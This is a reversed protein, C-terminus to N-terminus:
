DMVGMLYFGLRIDQNLIHGTLWDSLYAIDEVSLQPHEQNFKKQLQRVDEILEEHELKHEEFRKYQYKIMLREEHRFHWATCSILEELLAEIYEYTDNESVAESLLNYLEILRKHDEDIEDVEVSLTNDWVIKQM